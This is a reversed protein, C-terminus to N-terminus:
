AAPPITPTEGLTATLRCAVLGQWRDASCGRLGALVLPEAEGNWLLIHQLFSQLADLLQRQVVFDGVDGFCARSIVHNNSLRTEKSAAIPLAM